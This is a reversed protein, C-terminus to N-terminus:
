GTVHKIKADHSYRITASSISKQRRETGVDKYIIRFSAKCRRRQIELAGGLAGSSQNVFPQRNGVYGLCRRHV